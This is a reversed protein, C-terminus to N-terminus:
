RKKAIIEEKLDKREFHRSIKDLKKTINKMEDAVDGLSSESSASMNRYVELDFNFSQTRKKGNGTKYNVAFTIQKQQESNIFDVYSIAFTKLTQGKGFVPIPHKFLNIDELKKDGLTKLGKPEMLIKLDYVPTNGINAIVLDFFNGYRAQPELTVQINSEEAKLRAQRMEFWMLLTGVVYVATLLVLMLGSHDDLFV